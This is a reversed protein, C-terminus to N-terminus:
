EFREYKALDNRILSSTMIAGSNICPNHPLNDNNLCLENFNRGSPERGVFNHVIDEGHEELAIGYTVPKCCSQVNIMDQVDGVEFM